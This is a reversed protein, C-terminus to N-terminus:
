SSTQRTLWVNKDVGFHNFLGHGAEVSGLYDIQGILDMGAKELVRSSGLNVTPHAVTEVRQVGVQVFIYSLSAM